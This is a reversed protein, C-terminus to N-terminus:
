LSSTIAHDQYKEVISALLSRAQPFTSSLFHGDGGVPKERVPVHGRTEAEVETDVSKCRWFSSTGPFHCEASDEKESALM